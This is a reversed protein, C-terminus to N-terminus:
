LKLYPDAPGGELDLDMNLGNNVIEIVRPFDKEELYMNYLKEIPGLEKM